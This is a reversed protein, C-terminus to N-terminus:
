REQGRKDLVSFEGRRLCLGQQAIPALTAWPRRDACRAGAPNDRSAALRLKGVVQCFRHLTQKTDRWDALPMPPFLEM